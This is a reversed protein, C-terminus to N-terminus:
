PPGGVHRRSPRASLRRPRPLNPLIGTMAIALELRGSQRSRGACSRPRTIWPMFEQLQDFLQACRARLIPKALQDQVEREQGTLMPIAQRTVEFVSLENLYSALMQGVPVGRM